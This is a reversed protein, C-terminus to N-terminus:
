RVEPVSRSPATRARLAAGYGLPVHVRRALTMAALIARTTWSLPGSPAPGRCSLEQLPFSTKM